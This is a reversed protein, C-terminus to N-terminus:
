KREESEAKEVIRPQLISAISPLLTSVSKFALGTAEALPPSPVNRELQDSAGSEGLVKDEITSDGCSFEREQILIAKGTQQFILEKLWKGSLFARLMGTFSMLALRYLLETKKVLAAIGRLGSGEQGVRVLAMRILQQARQDDQRLGTGHMLQVALREMALVNGSAASREYCQAAASVNRSVSRGGRLHLDGEHLAAWSHGPNMLSLTQLLQLATAHKRHRLAAASSAIASGSVGSSGLGKNRLLMWAVNYHPIEYGEGSALLYMLLAESERGALLEKLAQRPGYPADLWPGVEAVRKYLKAVTKCTHHESLKGSSGSAGSMWASGKIGSLEYQQALALMSPVHDRREGRQFHHLAAELRGDLLEAQGLDFEADLSGAAAAQRLYRVGMEADESEFIRRNLLNGLSAAAVGRDRHSYGFSDSVGGGGGGGTDGLESGGEGENILKANAEALPSEVAQQLHKLAQGLNLECGHGITLLRGLEGQAGSHGAAAARRFFDVAQQLDQTTGWLGFQHMKGVEYLARADKREAHFQWYEVTETDRAVRAMIDDGLEDSPPALPRLSAYDGFFTADVRAVATTAAARYLRLASECDNHHYLYRYAAAMMAPLYNQEAALLELNWSASETDIMDPVGPIGIGIKLLFSMLHRGKPSGHHASQNALLFAKAPSQAVAGKGHSGFLHVYALDALADASIRGIRGKYGLAIEELLTLGRRFERTTSMPQLLRHTSHYKAEMSTYKGGSRGLEEFEPEALEIDDLLASARGIEIVATLLLFLLLGPFAATM